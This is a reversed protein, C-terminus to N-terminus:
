EREMRGMEDDQAEKGTKRKKMNNTKQKEEEEEQMKIKRGM